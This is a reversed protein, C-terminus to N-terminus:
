CRNGDKEAQRGSEKTEEEKKKKGCRRRWAAVV